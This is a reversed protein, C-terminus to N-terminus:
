PQPIIVRTARLEQDYGVFYAELNYPKGPKLERTTIPENYELREKPNIVLYRSAPSFTRDTSWQSVVKGTDPERLLMEILQSTAFKLNATVKSNNRLVLTVDLQRTEGLKVPDPSAKIEVVLGRANPRKGVLGPSTEFNASSPGHDAAADDHHRHLLSCASLGALLGITLLGRVFRPFRRSKM